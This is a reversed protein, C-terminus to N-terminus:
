CRCTGVGTYDAEGLENLSARLQQETSASHPALGGTSNARPMGAAAAQEDAAHPVPSSSLAGPAALGAIPSSAVSSGPSGMQQPIGLVAFLVFTHCVYCMVYTLRMCFRTTYCHWM